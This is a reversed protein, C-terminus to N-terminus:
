RAAARGEIATIAAPVAGGLCANCQRLGLFGCGTATQVRRLAPIARADGERGLAVVAGRRAECSRATALAVMARQTADLGEAFRPEALMALLRPSGHAGHGCAEVMADLASDALPGRLLAEAPASRAVTTAYIRVVDDVLADDDALAPVVRLADRYANVSQNVTARDRAYLSGLAYAVAADDPSQLRMAELAVATEHRERTGRTPLDPRARLAEVRTRLDALEDRRQADPVRHAARTVGGAAVPTVVPPRTPARLSVAALLAVAALAGAATLARARPTARRWRTHLTEVHTRGRATLARAFTSARLVAPALSAPVVSLPAPAELARALESVFDGASAHREGPSKALAKAFVADVDATLRGDTRRSSPPPPAVVMHLRLLAMVDDSEFPRRGVLMEYVVVAFAYLDVRHDITGGLAQEPAMYEPTGLVFGTQTLAQGGSDTPEFLKAIGFDIVKVTESGDPHRVVLINEPKIDRHVIGQAHAHDLAAAVQRALAVVRGSPLAEGRLSARLEQGECYEMALFFRGREDMGSDYVAIVNPHEIRAAAVAERAFRAAVEANGVMSEHLFKLAVQRHLGEHEALYVRGMAGEALSRVIRYREAVLAGPARDDGPPRDTTALSVDPADADM